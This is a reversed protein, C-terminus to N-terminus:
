PAGVPAPWFASTPMRSPARAMSAIMTQTTLMMMEAAM